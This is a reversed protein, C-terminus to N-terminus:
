VAGIAHRVAAVIRDLDASSLHENLFRGSAFVRDLRDHSVHAIAEGIAWTPVTLSRYTTADFPVHSAVPRRPPTASFPVVIAKGPGRGHRHNFSDPSVVAVRRLKRMEPPVTALDYDCMLIRGRSPAFTITM